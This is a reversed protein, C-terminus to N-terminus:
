DNIGYMQVLLSRAQVFAGSLGAGPKDLAADFILINGLRGRMGETGSSPYPSGGFFWFGGDQVQGSNVVQVTSIPLIVGGHGYQRATKTEADYSFAWVHPNDGGTSIASTAGNLVAGTNNQGVNPNFRMGMGVTDGANPKEWRYVMDNGTASGAGPGYTCAFTTVPDQMAAPNLTAAAMLVTFSRPISPPQVMFDGDKGSLALVPKNNWLPGGDAVKTISAKSWMCPAGSKKDRFMINRASASAMDVYHLLNPLAAIQKEIDSLALKGAGAYGAIVGPVQLSRAGLSPM